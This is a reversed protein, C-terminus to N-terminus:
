EPGEAHGVVKVGVPSLSELFAETGERDFRPDNAFIVLFFKDASALHFDEVGFLPHNLRPLGNLVLMGFIGALVACLVTLEFTILLFAPTAILPRGGIDIPYALNTAVQMGFGLAAGVIGGGLTLLPVRNDRFGLADAIGDVPFPSYADMRRYGEDRAKAVGASLQGAEGFEALLGFIPTHPTPERM